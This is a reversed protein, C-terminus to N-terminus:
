PFVREAADPDFSERELADEVFTLLRDRAEPALGPYFVPCAMVLARWALFPAVVSLLQDDDSAAGYRRWCRRWLPGLGDRWAPPRDLAFFVYNLALSAVDDAPDGQCGRSADLVTFRTGESFVINFPHFDGHTRRLRDERGRLRWRWALARREIAELRQPPAAPVDRGYSDIVGFIGEGSGVLDRVARRYAAPRTGRVSHLEVLYDVLADCQDVDLESARGARAIGRLHEAYTAGPAWTTLLYLEGSDRLSVLQGDARVAGVDVARAHKPIRGFTDFALLLEQARDSRRDHGFDNAAATHWVLDFPHGARDLLRLKVLSGYGATKATEGTSPAASDPGLVEAGLLHSGPFHRELVASLGGPVPVDM